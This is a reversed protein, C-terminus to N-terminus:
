YVMGLSMFQTVGFGVGVVSDGALSYKFNRIATNDNVDVMPASYGNLVDRISYVPMKMFICGKLFDNNCVNLVPSSSTLLAM